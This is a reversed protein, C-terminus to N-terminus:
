MTTSVRYERVCRKRIKGLCRISGTLINCSFALRTSAAGPFGHCNRKAASQKATSSNRGLIRLVGVPHHEMATKSALIIVM